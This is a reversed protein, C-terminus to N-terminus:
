RDKINKKSNKIKLIKVLLYGKISTPIIENYYKIQKSNGSLNIKFKDIGNPKQFSTIGGWDYDKINKSKLMIMDKYHLFKNARGILNKNNDKNRFDSCSHLLRAKNNEIIYSHFVISKKNYIAVTLLFMNANIYQKVLKKNLKVNLGKSKYMKNYCDEFENLIQSNNKLFKSSYEINKINDKISRRIENKATKSINNFLEDNNINLNTILSKQIYLYSNKSVNKSTNHFFIIDAKKLENIKKTNFWIHNIKIFKKKYIIEKM